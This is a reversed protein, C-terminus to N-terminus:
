DVRFGARATVRTSGEASLPDARGPALVIASVEATYGGRVLRPRVWMQRYTTGPPLRAVRLGPTCGSPFLEERSGGLALRLRLPCESELLELTDSTTNTWTARALLSDAPGIRVPEFSLDLLLGGGSGPEMRLTRDEFRPSPYAVDWRRVGLGFLGGVVAGLGAGIASIGVMQVVRPGLKEAAHFIPELLIRCVEFVGLAVCLVLGPVSTVFLGTMGGIAVGQGFGSHQVWLSDLPAVPVAWDRGGARLRISDAELGLLRAEFLREPYRLRLSDGPRLLRLAEARASSPLPPAQAGAAAPGSAAAALAIGLSFGLARV